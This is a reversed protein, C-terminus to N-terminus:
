ADIKEHIFELLQPEDIVIAPEVYVVGQQANDQVVLPSVGESSVSALRAHEKKNKRGQWFYFAVVATAILVLIIAVVVPHGHEALFAIIQRGYRAALYALIMYRPIRGLTLAALIKRPPYQMAGAALLFPVM